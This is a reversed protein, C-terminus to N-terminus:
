ILLYFFDGFLVSKDDICGTCNSILRFFEQKTIKCNDIEVGDSVVTSPIYFLVTISKWHFVIYVWHNGTRTRLGRQIGVCVVCPRQSGSREDGAQCPTIEVTM